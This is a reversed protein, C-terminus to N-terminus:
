YVGKVFVKRNLKVKSLQFPSDKLFGKLGFGKMLQLSIERYDYKDDLRSVNFVNSPSHPLYHMLSRPEVDSVYEVAKLSSSFVLPNITQGENEMVVLVYSNSM